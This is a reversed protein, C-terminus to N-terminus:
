SKGKPGAEDNGEDDGPRVDDEDDEDPPTQMRQGALSWADVYPTPEARKLPGQRARVWRLVAWLLLLLSLTLMALSMWAIMLMGRRRENDAAAAQDLTIWLLAGMGGALVLLSVILGGFRRGPPTEM